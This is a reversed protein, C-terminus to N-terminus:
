PGAAVEIADVLADLDFTGDHRLGNIFFTLTGNVGSRVGSMFHERVPPPAHMHTALERVLRPVNLGLASAYQLM